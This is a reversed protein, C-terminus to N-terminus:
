VYDDDIPVNRGATVSSNEKRKVVQSLLGLSLRSACGGPDIHFDDQSFQV